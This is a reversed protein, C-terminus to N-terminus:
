QLSALDRDIAAVLDRQGFREALRRAEEAVPLGRGREGAQVLAVALGYVYRPTEADVPTRLKEFEAIAGRFDRRAMRVRALNFRALRFGPQADVARRYEDEAEALRRELELIQGLNNRAGAHLPNVGLARRYAAAAETWRRQEGLVVGFNYHAEELDAGLALVATYHAEAKAPEHVRGYLTILNAHATALRPNVDLAAEYAATAGGLDGSAALRMGKQM